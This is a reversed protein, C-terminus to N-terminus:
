APFVDEREELFQNTYDVAVFDVGIDMLRVAAKEAFARSTLDATLISRGTGDPVIAYVQHASWFPQWPSDALPEPRLWGADVRRFYPSPQWM